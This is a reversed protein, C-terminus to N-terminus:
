RLLIDEEGCFDSRNDANYYGVAGGLIFYLEDGYKEDIEKDSICFFIDIPCEISVGGFEFKLGDLEKELEEFTIESGLELKDLIYTINVACASTEKVNVKPIYNAKFLMIKEERLEPRMELWDLIIKPKSSFIYPM